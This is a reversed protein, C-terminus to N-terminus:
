SLKNKHRYAAMGAAGLCLLIISAPEPAASLAEEEPTETRGFSNLTITFDVPNVSIEAWGYFTTGGLLISLGLDAPAANGNWFGFAPNNFNSALTSFQSGFTLTPGIATIDTLRQPAPQSSYLAVAFAQGFPSVVRAKVGGEETDTSLQFWDANAATGYSGTALDFYVSPVEAGTSIGASWTIQGAQATQPVSVAAFALSMAGYAKLRNELTGAFNLNKAM